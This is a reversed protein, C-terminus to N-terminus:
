LTNRDTLLDEDLALFAKLMNSTPADVGLAETEVIMRFEPNFTDALHEWMKRAAPVSMAWRLLDLNQEFQARSLTALQFEFWIKEFTRMITTLREVMHARDEPTLTENRQAKMLCDIYRDNKETLQIVDQMSRLASAKMTQTNQRIQIALYGLTILVAIASLTEGIAGIADWNM